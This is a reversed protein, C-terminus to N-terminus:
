GAFVSVLSGASTGAQNARWALPTLRVQDLCVPRWDGPAGFAAKAPWHLM